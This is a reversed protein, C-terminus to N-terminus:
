QKYHKRPLDVKNFAKDPYLCFFTPPATYTLPRILSKLIIEIANLERKTM